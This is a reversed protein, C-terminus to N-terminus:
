FLKGKKLEKLEAETIEGIVVCVIAVIILIIALPDRLISKLNFSYGFITKSLAFIRASTLVMIAIAIALWCYFRNQMKNIRPIWTMCSPCKLADNDMEKSCYACKM